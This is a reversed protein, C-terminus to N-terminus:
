PQQVQLPVNMPGAQAIYAPVMTGYGYQPVQMGYQQPAPPAGYYQQPAQQGGYYMLPQPAHLPPKGSLGPHVAVPRPPPQVSQQMAIQHTAPNVVPNPRVLNQAPVLQQQRPRAKNQASTTACSQYWRCRERNRTKTIPHMYGPDTGGVCQADTASWLHSGFCSPATTPAAATVNM